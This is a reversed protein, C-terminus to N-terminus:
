YSTYPRACEVGPIRGTIPSAVGSPRILVGQGVTWAPAVAQDCNFSAIAGTQANFQLLASSSGTLGFRQCLQQFGNASPSGPNNNVPSVAPVSVFNDGRAGAADPFIELNMLSAVSGCVPPGPPTQALAPSTLLAASGAVLAIAMLTRRMSTKM